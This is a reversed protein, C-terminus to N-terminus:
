NMKKKGRYEFSSVPNATFGFRLSDSAYFYGKCRMGAGPYLNKKRLKVKFSTNTGAPKIILMSDIADKSIVICATDVRNGGQLNSFSTSRCFYTGTYADRYDNTLGGPMNFATCISFGLLGLAAIKKNTKAKM